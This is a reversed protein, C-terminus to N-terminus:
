HCGPIQYSATAAGWLFGTPFSCRRGGTAPRTTTTTPDTTTM